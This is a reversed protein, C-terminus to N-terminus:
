ALLTKVGVLNIWKNTEYRKITLWNTKFRVGGNHSSTKDLYHFRSKSRMNYFAYKKDAFVSSIIGDYTKVTKWVMEHLLNMYYLYHGPTDDNQVLLLLDQKWEM